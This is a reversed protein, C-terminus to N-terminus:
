EPGNERKKFCQEAAKWVDKKQYKWRGRQSRKFNKGEETRGKLKM